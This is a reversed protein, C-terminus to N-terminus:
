GFARRLNPITTPPCLAREFEAKEAEPMGYNNLLDPLMAKAKDKIRVYRADQTTLGSWGELQRAQTRVNDNVWRSRYEILPHHSLLIDKHWDPSQFEPNKIVDHAQKRRFLYAADFWTAWWAPERLEQTKGAGSQDTWVDAYSIRGTIRAVDDVWHDVFWYPFYEPFITNGMLEVWKRTPAAVGTFSANAMRGYVIGIGDPFKRAAEIIRADYGAVVYPDDDAASMYLDADPDISVIRNWKEAITDERPKVSLKVREGWRNRIASHVANATDSDDEDAMVWLVTNGDTLNVISRDITKVVQAPRGRTALSIVMRM